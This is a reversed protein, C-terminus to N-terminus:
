TLATPQATPASCPVGDFEDAGIDAATTGGNVSGTPGPRTDGDIDIVIGVNAGGSELATPTVGSNIHLDTNSVFMPDVNQSAENQTFATKIDGLTAKALFSLYGLTGGPAYYDNNNLFLFIGTSTGGYYIAYRTNTTQTTAFINNRIDLSNPTTINSTINLAASKGTTQNTTLRISNHYINYGGGGQLIIGYGNYEEGMLNAHGYSAVDYIFNNVVYLNANTSNSALDIGNSGYGGTNTNKINYIINKSIMTGGSQTGGVYIGSATSSSASVVGTITNGAITAADQQTIFIGRYGIQDSVLAGGITNGTITNATENGTVGVLAIGYQSAKIINNTYSNNRNAAEAADIITTGSSSVIGYLTTTFANGLITCNKITNYTAGNSASASGLWIVADYISINTNSITLSNGGTNLGDITVRDAGNLKIIAGAISGTITKPSGGDPQITMTFNSNAPYEAWQNLVATATETANGVVNATINGTVVGGNIADFFAKLTTYTGGTGVTYTGSYAAAISYSSPTTPPTAAAPPDATFGGAGGGPYAGINPTGVMDQAVIYYSVVDGVITAASGFTFSYSNDGGYSATVSTYAGANVKYYLVPLGIGSTPVGSADTITATLTQDIGPPASGLATYSIVPPTLDLAIGELEWAGMDPATGIGVYGPNGQRITGTYDTTYTPINTAGSEIQSAITIDYKLFDLSSGDTSQWAVNETASLRDRTAMRTKFGGITQDSNTADFFIVNGVSPTGAYFLNDNSTTAYNDLAVASRRYAATKGTGKPISLNVFINNRANLAATTATVNAKHYLASTGFNAGASSANIYVTNYYVNMTSTTGTYELSIGRIADTNASSPATLDGILNNYVNFSVGTKSGAIGLGDVASSSTSATSIKAIKNKYVNTIAANAYTNGVYLGCVWSGNNLNYITNNAITNSAGLYGMIIGNITGTSTAALSFNSVTNGTCTKNGTTATSNYIGYMIQTATSSSSFNNLTNNTWIETAPSSGSYIGYFASTSTTSTSTINTISNANFTHSSTANGAYQILYYIGAGSRSINDITNNSVTTARSYGTYIATVQGTATVWNINKIQNNNLNLINGATSSAYSTSNIGYFASAGTSTWQINSIINSNINNTTVETATANFNIGTFGGALTGAAYTMTGTGSNNAYGITNNTIAFGSGTATAGTNVCYIGYHTATTTLTRTATQYIKNNTITWVTNGTSMYIAASSGTALFYDFFECNDITINSNEIATNTTSGNAVICQSPLNSGSPGFRCNQFLNNDNGTTTGTSIWVVATNSGAVGKAAGLFTVGNFSNNTADGVLKLTSTGTTASVTTNEITLNNGGNITVNDAGNFNILPNGATAAGSITWPGGSPAITISTWAGAVLTAGTAPEATNGSIDITVTGTTTADFAAFAASLTTYSGDANSSGAVTIQSYSVSTLTFLTVLLLLFKRM